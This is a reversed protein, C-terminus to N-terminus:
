DKGVEHCQLEFAVNTSLLCLRCWLCFMTYQCNLSHTLGDKLVRDLFVCDVSCLNLMNCSTAQTDLLSLLQSVFLWSLVNFSKVIAYSLCAMGINSLVFFFAEGMKKFASENM